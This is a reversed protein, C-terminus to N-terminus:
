DSVASELAAKGGSIEAIEQTIGAQRAQNFTLTLSDIMDLAADSASRMALMRSAHESAAAELVAQYVAAEAVRPLLRDMVGKPDPEFLPDQLSAAPAPTEVAGLTFPFLPEVMPKQVMASVFETYCLDVRDYAGKTFELSAFQGLPLVEEFTPADTMETYVGVVSIGARHMAEAGRKGICLADVKVRPGYSAARSLAARIANANYGGALGRDSTFVLLLANKVETSARLLPHLSVDVRGALARVTERALRVYPRPGTVAATAKRMKSAAILEMAKTIKRTNKVSKIRRKIARTQLAM